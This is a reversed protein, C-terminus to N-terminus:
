LSRSCSFAARRSTSVPRRLASYSWTCASSSLRSASTRRRCSASRASCSLTAASSLAISSPMAACMRSICSPRRAEMSASLRVKASSCPPSLSSLSCRRTSMSCRACLTTALTSSHWAPMSSSLTFRRSRSACVNFRTPSSMKRRCSFTSLSRPCRSAVTDCSPASRVDSVCRVLVCSSLNWVMTSVSIAASLPASLASFSSRTASSSCITCAM